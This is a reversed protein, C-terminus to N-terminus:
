KRRFLRKIAGAIKEFTSKALPEFTMNIDAAPASHTLAGVSIFDIGTSAYERVRNITMNGSVELKARGETREVAVRVDTPSMNDLMVTDAHAAIAEELEELTRVEVEVNQHDAAANLALQVAKKVSGASAIHNNKILYHDYLGCRHNTGGGLRVAEKELERYAPTTKRTDLIKAKTGAAADVFNRTQTAIGSLHQLFNLATREGALLSRTKGEVTAILDGVKLADGDKPAQNWIVTPDIAHFVKEAAKTGALTLESKARIHARSFSDEDITATSTIDGSGLDEDVALRILLDLNEM